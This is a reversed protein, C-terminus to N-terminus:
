GQTEAKHIMRAMVLQANHKSTQRNTQRESAYLYRKRPFLWRRATPAVLIKGDPRPIRPGDRLDRGNAAAQMDHLINPHFPNLHM